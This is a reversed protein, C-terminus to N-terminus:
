TFDVSENCVGATLMTIVNEGSVLWPKHVACCALLGLMTESSSGVGSCLVNHKDNSKQTSMDKCSTGAVVHRSSPADKWSKSKLDYAQRRGLCTIDPFLLECHFHRQIYKQKERSIECSFVHRLVLSASAQPHELPVELIRSRTVRAFAYLWIIPNETGSCMTAVTHPEREQFLAEATRLVNNYDKTDLSTLWHIYCREPSLIASKSLVTM